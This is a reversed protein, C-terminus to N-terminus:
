YVTITAVLQSEGKGDNSNICPSAIHKQRRNNLKVVPAKEESSPLLSKYVIRIVIVCFLLNNSDYASDLLM